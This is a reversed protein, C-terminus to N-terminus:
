QKGFVAVIFERLTIIQPPNATIIAKIFNSMEIDESIKLRKTRNKFTDLEEPISYILPSISLSKATDLIWKEIGEKIYFVHQNPLTSHKLWQVGDKEESLSFDSMFKNTKLGKKNKDFFGVTIELDGRKEMVVFVETGNVHQFESNHKWEFSDTLIEIILTDFFCEPYLIPKPSINM